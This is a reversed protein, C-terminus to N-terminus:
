YPLLHLVGVFPAPPVVEIDMFRACNAGLRTGTSSSMLSDTCLSSQYTSVGALAASFAIAREIGATSCM